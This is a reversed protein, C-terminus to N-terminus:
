ALCLSVRHEAPDVSIIKFIQVIGEKLGSYKAKEKEIESSHVLGRINGDLQVFIGFHNMKLITGKIEQNPKFNVAVTQWPDELLAKVSLSVKGNTVDIVKAKIKEGEKFMTKPDEVLQWSLESIHVLGEIKQESTGFKLFIGFNVVGTIEGEIIDGKEYSNILNLEESKRAIKESVILKNEDRDVTIISVRFITNIYESLRSLIKTKDGGDVRPYHDYALQSVPLFGVIGNIQVLLGGKNADLIKVDVPEGSEKKEYLDDWVKDESASKMSLEIYGDETNLNIVTATVEDGIKLQKFTGFGDNLEEGLVIGTGIGLDIYLANTGIELVKGVVDEGVNPINIPNEALLIDMKSKTEKSTSM